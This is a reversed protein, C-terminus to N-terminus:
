FPDRPGVTDSHGSQVKFAALNTLLRRKGSSDSTCIWCLASSSLPLLTSPGFQIEKQKDDCNIIPRIILVMPILTYSPLHSYILVCSSMHHYSIYIWHISTCNFEISAINATQSFRKRFIFKNTLFLKSAASLRQHLFLLWWIWTWGMEDTEM